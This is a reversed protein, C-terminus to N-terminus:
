TSLFKKNQNKGMSNQSDNTYFLIILKRVQEIYVCM